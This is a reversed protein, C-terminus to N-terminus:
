GSEQGTLSQRLHDINAVASGLIGNIFRAAEEDAYLKALEIVENIAVKDATGICAIEALALRLLVREVVGIRDYSWEHPYRALEADLIERHDATATVLARIYQEASEDAV